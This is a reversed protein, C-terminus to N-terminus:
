KFVRRCIVTADCFMLVWNLYFISIIKFQGGEPTTNDTDMPTASAQEQFKPILNSVVSAIFAEEESLAPQSESSNNEGTQDSGGPHNNTDDTAM